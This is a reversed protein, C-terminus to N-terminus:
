AAERRRVVPQAQLQLFRVGCLCAVSSLVSRSRRFWFSSRLLCQHRMDRWRCRRASLRSSGRRLWACVEPAKHVLQEHLVSKAALKCLLQTLSSSMGTCGTDSIKASSTRTSMLSSICEPIQHSSQEFIFIDAAQVPSRYRQKVRAGVGQLVCVEGEEKWVLEEGLNHKLFRDPM